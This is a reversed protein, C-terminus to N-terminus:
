SSIAEIVMMWRRNLRTICSALVGTSDNAITVRQVGTGSAGNGASALVGAFTQQTALAGSRLAWLRVSDQDASVDTPAAASATAGITVPAGSVAADHAAAGLAIGQGTSDSAVTVRVAASNTGNGAAVLTGGLGLQVVQSGNRLYWARVADTDASVDSPAAASAYGGMLLPHAGGAAADNAVFGAVGLTGNTGGTVVTNGGVQTINAGLNGTGANATVTGSITVATGNAATNALSVQIPTSATGIETGALNRLNVHEARQPTIRVIGVSNENAATTGTDDVAGM